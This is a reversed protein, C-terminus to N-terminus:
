RHSKPQTQQEKPQKTQQKKQNNPNQQKTKTSRSFAAPQAPFAQKKPGNKTRRHLRDCGSLHHEGLPQAAESVENNNVMTVAIHAQVAIIFTQILLHAVPNLGAIRDRRNAVATDLGVRAQIKFHPMLATRYVGQVPHLSIVCFAISTSTPRAPMSAPAANVSMRGAIASLSASVASGISSNRAKVSTNARILLSYTPGTSSLFSIEEAILPM